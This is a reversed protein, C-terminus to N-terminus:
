LLHGSWAGYGGSSPIEAPTVRMSETPAEWFGPRQFMRSIGWDGVRVGCVVGLAASKWENEQVEIRDRGVCLGSGVGNGERDVRGCLKWRGGIVTKNGRRLSIWVDKRPSEKKNLNKPDTFQIMPIRYKTALICLHTCVMCTRKTQTVENLIISEIRNM